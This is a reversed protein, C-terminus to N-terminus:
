HSKRSLLSLSLCASVLDREALLRMATKLDPVRADEVAKMAELYQQFESSISFRFPSVDAIVLSSLTDKPLDPDLALTSAVKGGRDYITIPLPSQFLTLTLRDRLLM